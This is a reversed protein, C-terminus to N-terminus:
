VMTTYASSVLEPILQGADNMIIDYTAEFIQDASVIDTEESFFNRQVFRLVENHSQLHAAVSFPLVKGISKWPSHQPNTLAYLVIIKTQVAAALHISGTNVSVMLPSLKILTIFEELSFSGAMTYAFSGIDKRIKEALPKESEIGTIVIQYNLENVIRKGAQTWSAVPYERKEESVGPHMILWPKDYDVGAASLKKKVVPEFGVPLAIEIKENQVSAGISKVLDLDRRVQHRIFTYPEEEPIWHSLLQYPNERCYALRKPIEAMSVLLAAPLPSQSFVTFIVAADFKREKLTDIMALFSKNTSDHNGKVWPVDWVLVDDIARIYPTIGKAVSSTLVTISCGFTEKLATIAPASMLLDGMNDLRVCLINKCDHWSIM